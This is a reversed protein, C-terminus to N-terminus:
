QKYQFVKKGVKIIKLEEINDELSISFLPVEYTDKGVTVNTSTNENQSIVRFYNNAVLDHVISGNPIEQDPYFELTLNEYNIKGYIVSKDEYNKINYFYCVFRTNTKQYVTKIESETFSNVINGKINKLLSM